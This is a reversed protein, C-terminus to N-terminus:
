GVYIKQEVVTDSAPYLEGFGLDAIRVVMEEASLFYIQVEIRTTKDPRKPMQTLPIRCMKQKADFLRVVKLELSDCKEPILEVTTGAEYWDCGGPCLILKKKRNKQVVEMSVESPIRGECLLHYPSKTLVEQEIMAAYLAGKAFLNHDYHVHRQRCILDLFTESWETCHAFGEGALYVQSINKGHFIREACSTLISDAMKAGTKQKLIDLSFHEELVEHQVLMQAPRVNRRCVAEYYELGIKTLDFLGTMGVANSKGYREAYYGFCEAHGMIHVQDELLGAASVASYITDLLVADTRPVAICLRALQKGEYRRYVLELTQKLFIACLQQATYSVGELITQGSRSIMGLLNDVVIGQGALACQLAEEGVLWVDEGRKKCLLTAISQKLGEEDFFVDEPETADMSCCSIRVFDPCLDYGIILDGTENMTREYQRLLREGTM